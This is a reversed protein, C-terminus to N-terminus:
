RLAKGLTGGRERIIKCYFGRGFDKSNKGEIIKPNKVIM